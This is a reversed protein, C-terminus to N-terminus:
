DGFRRNLEALTEAAQALGKGAAEALYKRAAAYDKERVAIAGRAYIAEASDGAREVYRRAAALDGRRMAANAANLNAAEDDPYMRVATEYVETFEDSGPELGNAALYFENLDLNQPHTRMVKLIEAPDGYSRIVYSVRYDTHRLAPYIHRHMFRYDEPYLRKIRAEKADPEMDSDILAIIADRNELNSEAVAKRLGAWDEPEYDTDMVVNDFRYLSTIYSKLAETRGIALETNHSYPSEPSAYGKLWVSDIRADRDNRITDITARISALETTNRRYDPYIVTQDVPFDIYARGELTRRKERVGQPLAYVLEPFFREHHRGIEGYDRLLVKGCCGRDIRRLTVKAGDMWDSFPLLRHYDVSLPKDKALFTMTEPDAIMQEAAAKPNRQYYYYRSRGYVAVPPLSISDTEGVLAPMLVVCQNSAVRLDALGLSMDLSLFSGDRETSFRDVTVNDVIDTAYAAYQCAAFIISALLTKKIM